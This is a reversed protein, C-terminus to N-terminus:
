CCRHKFARENRLTSVDKGSIRYWLAVRSKNRDVVADVAHSAAHKMRLTFTRELYSSHLIAIKTTHRVKTSRPDTRMNLTLSLYPYVERLLRELVVRVKPAFLDALHEFSEFIGGFRLVDNSLSSAIQTAELAIKHLHLLLLLCLSMSSTLCLQLLLILPSAARQPLHSGALYDSKLKVILRQPRCM